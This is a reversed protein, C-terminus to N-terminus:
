VGSVTDSGSSGDMLVVSAAQSVPNALLGRTRGVAVATEGAMREADAASTGPPYGLMWLVSLKVSSIGTGAKRLLSTWGESAGSSNDVVRVGAWVLGDGAVPPLEADLFAGRQKNPNLIDPYRDVTRVISDRDCDAEFEWVEYRLIRVPASGPMFGALAGLATIAAPDPSKLTVALVHRM